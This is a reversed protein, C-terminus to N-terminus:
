VLPPPTPAILLCPGGPLFTFDFISAAKFAGGQSDGGQTCPESPLTRIQGQGQQPEASVPGAVMMALLAAVALVLLIRRLM